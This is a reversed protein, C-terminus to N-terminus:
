RPCRRTVPHRLGIESSPRGAITCRRLIRQVRMRENLPAGPDQVGNTHLEFEPAGDARQGM